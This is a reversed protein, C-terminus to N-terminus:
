QKRDSMAVPYLSPVTSPWYKIADSIFAPIYSPVELSDEALEGIFQLTHRRCQYSVYLAGVSKGPSHYTTHYLCMDAMNMMDLAIRGLEPLSLVPRVPYRPYIHPGRDDSFFFHQFHFPQKKGHVNLLSTKIYDANAYL